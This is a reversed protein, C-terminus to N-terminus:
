EPPAADGAATDLSRGRRAGLVKMRGAQPLSPRQAPPDFREVPRRVMCAGSQLFYLSRESAPVPVPPSQCESSHRADIHQGSKWRGAGRGSREYRLILPSKKRRKAKAPLAGVAAAAGGGVCSPERTLRDAGRGCLRGGTNGRRGAARNGVMASGVMEDTKPSPWARSTLRRRQSEARRAARGRGRGARQGAADGSRGTGAPGGRERARACSFMLSARLTAM